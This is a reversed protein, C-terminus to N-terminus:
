IEIYITDGRRTVDSYYVGTQRFENLDKDYIEWERTSNNIGGNQNSSNTYIGLAIGNFYWENNNGVTFLDEESVIAIKLKIVGCTVFSRM